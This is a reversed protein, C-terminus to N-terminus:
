PDDLLDNGEEVAGEVNQGLHPNEDASVMSSQMIGYAEGSIIEEEQHEYDVMQDGGMLGSNVEGSLM